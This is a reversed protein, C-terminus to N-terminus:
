NASISSFGSLIIIPKTGPKKQFGTLNQSFIVWLMELHPLPLNINTLNGLNIIITQSARLKKAAILLGLLSLTMNYSAIIDVCRM